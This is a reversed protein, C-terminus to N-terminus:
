VQDDEEDGEEIEVDEDEPIWAAQYSSVGKPVVRKVTEDAASSMEEDTPFTQEADMMDVEAQPNLDPQKSAQCSAIKQGNIDLVHDILYDGVGPLHVPLNVLFYARILDANSASISLNMSQTLTTIDM